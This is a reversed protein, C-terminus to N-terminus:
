NTPKPRVGSFNFMGAFPNPENPTGTPQTPQVFHPQPDNQPAPPVPDAGKTVFADANDKSYQEAFDDAGLIQGNSMKLKAETLSRAFDRQAAKSTFEKTGIFEKVAFDYAQADLQKKLAKTDNDYRSQLSTFDASLQTLKDADTGADSLKKQLDSLDADRKALSDNLSAIQSDRGALEDAYKQKSVYEGDALNALKIGNDKLLKEFVTYNLVGNEAENFLGKLDM